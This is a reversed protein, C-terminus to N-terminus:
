PLVEFRDRWPLRVLAPRVYAAAADAVDRTAVRRPRGGRVDHIIPGVGARDNPRRGCVGLLVM